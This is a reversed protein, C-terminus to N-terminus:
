RFLLVRLIVDTMRFPYLVFTDLTFQSEGQERTPMEISVETIRQGNKAAELTQEVAWHKDSRHLIRRLASVRYVRFGSTVDTIDIGGLTNVVKTFFTIGLKRVLPYEQFSENLYRSAIVMDHDEAQALLEPIYAPDHQGDGDIQLVFDYDHRIAYQYGTRVAGGVGTNFVHEIVTAGHDRAIAATGDTSGDDVVVVDDVHERTQEIVAAITESENYAPIVAVTRV